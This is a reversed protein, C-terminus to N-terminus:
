QRRQPVSYTMIIDQILVRYARQLVWYTLFESFLLWDAGVRCRTIHYRCHIFIDLLLSFYTNFAKLCVHICNCNRLRTQHSGYLFFSDILHFKNEILQNSCLLIVHRYLRGTLNTVEKENITVHEVCQTNHKM